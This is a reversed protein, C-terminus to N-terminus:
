SVEIQFSRVQILPGAVYPTNEQILALFLFFSKSPCVWLFLNMKKTSGEQISSFDHVGM